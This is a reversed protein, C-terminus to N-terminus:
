FSELKANQLNFLSESLVFAFDLYVGLNLYKLEIKNTWNKLDSMNSFYPNFFLGDLGHELNMKHSWLDAKILPCSTVSIFCM